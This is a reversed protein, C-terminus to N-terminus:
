LNGAVENQKGRNGSLIKKAMNWLEDSVENILVVKKIEPIEKILVAEVVDEITFKASPCGSCEGMFKVEVIGDKVDLLTIDGNHEALRPKIEDNIVQQVKEFILDKM